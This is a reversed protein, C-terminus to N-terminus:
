YIGDLALEARRVEITGPDSETVETVEDATEVAADAAAVAERDYAESRAPKAEDVRDWYDNAEHDAFDLEPLPLSWVEADYDLDPRYGGHMDLEYPGVEAYVQNSRSITTDAGTLQWWQPAPDKIRPDVADGILAGILLGGPVIALAYTWGSHM